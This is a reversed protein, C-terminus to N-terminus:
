EPPVETEVYLDDDIRRLRYRSSRADPPRVTLDDPSDWRASLVRGTVFPATDGVLLQLLCDFSGLDIPRSQQLLVQEYLDSGVVDPGATVLEDMFTSAVAGPSIANVRVNYPALEGAVTETLVAVAAKSSTYASLCNPVSPGGVGGGCLTVIAGDRRDVMAPAFAGVTNAVGVLNVTVTRAWRSLDMKHLPGVPGLEAANAIVARVPGLAAATVEAFTAMETPSSVDAGVGVSACGTALALAEATAVAEQEHRSCVAISWGAAALVEAVHAGIGKTGGTIACVKRGKMM